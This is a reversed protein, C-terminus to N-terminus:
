KKIAEKLYKLSVNKKLLESGYNEELTRFSRDLSEGYETVDLPLVFNDASDLLIKSAIKATTLHYEFKPDILGQLWKYTDHVTHYVPYFVKGVYSMDLSPVGVSFSPNYYLKTLPVM